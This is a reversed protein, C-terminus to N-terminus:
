FKRLIVVDPILNDPWFKFGHEILQGTLQQCDEPIMIELSEEGLELAKAQMVPLLKVIYDLELRYPTIILEFVTLPFYFLNKEYSLTTTRSQLWKRGQETNRPFEWGLPLYSGYQKLYDLERPSPTVPQAQELISKAKPPNDNLSSEIDYHLIYYRQVIKFNDKSGLHLSEANKYYTCFEVDNVKNKELLEGAKKIVFNYLIKGYGQKQFNKHVRLGELWLVNEPYFSLKVTGILKGDVYLGYFNGDEIWQNYIKGLFDYGNWTVKSIDMIQQHDQPTVLKIETSQNM